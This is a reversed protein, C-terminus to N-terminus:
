APQPLVGDQLYLELAFLRPTDPAQANKFAVYAETTECLWPQLNRPRRDAFAEPAYLAVNVGRLPCRASPYEFAEVGAERM